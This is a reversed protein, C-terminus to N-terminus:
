CSTSNSGALLLARRLSNQSIADEKNWEENEEEREKEKEKELEYLEQKVIHWDLELLENISNYIKERIWRKCQM